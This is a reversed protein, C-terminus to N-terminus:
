GSRRDTSSMLRLAEPLLLIISPPKSHIGRYISALLTPMVMWTHPIVFDNRMKWQETLGDAVEKPLAEGTNESIKGSRIGRTKEASSRRIWWTKIFAIRTAFNRVAVGSPALIAGQVAEEQKCPLGLKEPTLIGEDEAM